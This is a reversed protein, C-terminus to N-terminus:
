KKFGIQTWDATELQRPGLNVIDGKVGWVYPTPYLPIMPKLKMVEADGENALKRAEDEDLTATAAKFKEGIAESSIGSNNQESDAPYFLNSGSSIPFPTGQVTFTVMDFNGTYVHDAFYSAVPVTQIEVKFGVQNLDNMVQEARQANSATDAPVVIKFTLKVGDKERVGGSGEKWGADELIKKAAEPDYDLSGNTNDQYGKQGPMYTFNNVLTVPAEVPGIAASAVAERNIARGIADRVEQDKLGDKKANMTVHTFEMGQSKYIEGDERKQATQYADGNTGIDVVDIEKNAYAQAQQAQSVSKFVIKDLKPEQGWWKDNRELTIVQANTDVSTAKYPGNSPLFKKSYEENFVKPDETIENPVPAGIYNPWDINPTKFTVKVEYKDAGSEISEIDEYGKTSAVQFDKNKGDRTKWFATYDDVDIPTGDEWVANKNLKVDIVLPDQSTMEVSEAYNKDVVWSGDAKVSVPGGLSAGYMNANDVLAGDAHYYNLSAPMESIPYTLTGGDAVEDYSAKQYDTSPLGSIEKDAKDSDVGGADGKDQQCGALALGLVATAAVVMTAKKRMNM